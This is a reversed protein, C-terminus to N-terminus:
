GDLFPRGLKQFETRAAALVHTMTVPPGAAAALFAANLAINVINGGALDLRALRDFDLQGTPTAEPFVRRWIGARLAADPFPFQLVFRLRRLFAPDMASKLNTTLIALGRYTEMRQLLYSVEINAYRDHSDRIETRRGFLADAEDFLLVAGGEEATDFVRRLNKETEGIYKSVVQSLDIRYLDLRLDGALVEAAMTKGTGSPGSFLASIGLGRTVRRGMDWRGYVTPRHRVQFAIQRLGDQVAEPLVLDAWAARPQIRQALDDLKPRGQNRVAAWLRDGLEEGAAPPPGLAEACAARIRTAGVDFHAVLEDIREQQPESREGLERRWLDRQEDPTPRPVDVVVNPRRLERRPDRASILVPGRIREVMRDIAWSRQGEGEGAEGCQLLPVCGALVAERQWLRVLADLERPEGPILHAATAAVTAGIVAAAWAAVQVNAADDPGCLQIAPLDAADLATSWMSAVSEALSRHSPALGGPEVQSAISAIREDLTRVGCLHHLVREDIRLPCAVLSPGGGVDVLRWRRLPAEPTLASWHPDPLTALALGFTPCPRGADAQAAACVGPFDGDLECAACLLLTAREFTSLGFAAGLAVLAPSPITAVRAAEADAARAPVADSRELRARLEAIAAVLYRQNAEEWTDGTM